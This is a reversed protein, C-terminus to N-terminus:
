TVLEPILVTFLTVDNAYGVRINAALIDVVKLHLKGGDVFISV